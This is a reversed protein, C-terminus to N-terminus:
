FPLDTPTLDSRLQFLDAEYAIADNAAGNKPPRKRIADLLSRSNFQSADARRQRLWRELHTRARESGNLAADILSEVDGLWVIDGPLTHTEAPPPKIPPKGFRILLHQSRLAQYLEIAVADVTLVSDSPAKGMYAVVYRIADTQRKVVQCDIVNSGHTLTCWTARLDRWDLFKVHALIHLHPHWQHTKANRTIEVVAFGHTVRHQWVPEQRLRKFCKTLFDLQEVLPANTHKLTLTIFQWERAPANVFYRQLSDAVAMQRRVRCAPCFRNKCTSAAVFYRAEAPSYALKASSGCSKFRARAALSPEADDILALWRKREELAHAFRVQQAPTDRHPTTGSIEQPDLRGPAAAVAPPMTELPAAPAPLELQATLTEM